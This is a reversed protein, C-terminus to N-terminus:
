GLRPYLPALEDEGAAGKASPPPAGLGAEFAAWLADGRWGDSSAGAGYLDRELSRIAPGAEGAREALSGLGTPPANPWRAMAWDLLAKEAARPDARECASRLADRARRMRDAAASRGDGPETAAKSRLRHRRRIMLVAGLGLLGLIVAAASLVWGLSLGSGARDSSGGAGQTAEAVSGAPADEALDIETAARAGSTPGTVSLSLAPVRAVREEGAQTDWWAIEIPPMEIEGGQTPIVTVQQQSIGILTQGDSRTESKTQGPYVRLGPPTPIAVEPIQNGALGWATLTLTRTAPEGVVLRPREGDDASAWSDEVTLATAPLWHEGSLGQASAVELVLAESQARAPEGREFLGASSGLRMGGLMRDIMPDDFLDSLGRAAPSGAGVTSETKLEADFVIPPIRLSGSREPNLSYRREIVRYQKGARNILSGRDRGIRTLVAGEVVPMEIRYDLLPQASYARVVLPVQQQVVLPDPSGDAPAGVEVELWVRDGPSGLGGEPVAEVTLSLADTTETGVSIPPISLRGLRKPRLGVQWRTQDSRRGNIIQTQQSTSLGGVEFDDALPDLDPEDSPGRGDREITLVVQDGEYVQTQDLFARVGDGWVLTPLLWLAM